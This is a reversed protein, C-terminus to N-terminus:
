FDFDDLDTPEIAVISNPNVSRSRSTVSMSVWRFFKKIERAEHAEFVRGETDKLFESLTKKDADEGIALALRISKSARESALLEKLPQEWDDTPVGDSVLVITPRYARSPIIEQNEVIKQTLALAGGMPTRGSATLNEWKLESAPRLPKFMIAGDAGFTIVAVHIEARTDDEEAFTSIMERLAENLIDIKGNAVMSGSVDALVIVPLPRPSSMTFEMLESMCKEMVIPHYGKMVSPNYTTGSLNESMSTQNPEWCAKHNRKYNDGVCRSVIDETYKAWGM